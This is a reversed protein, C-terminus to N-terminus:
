NVPTYHVQNKLIVHTLPPFALIFCGLNTNKGDLSPSLLTPPLLSGRPGEAHLTFGWLSAELEGHLKVHGLPPSAALTGATLIEGCLLLSGVGKSCLLRIKRGPSDRGACSPKMPRPMRHFEGLGLVGDGPPYPASVLVAAGVM